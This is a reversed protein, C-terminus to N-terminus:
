HHGNEFASPPVSSTMHHQGNKIAAFPASGIIIIIIIIICLQQPGCDAFQPAQPYSTIAIGVSIHQQQHPHHSHWTNIAIM